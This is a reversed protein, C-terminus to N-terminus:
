DIAATSVINFYTFRPFFAFIELFDSLVYFYKWVSTHM